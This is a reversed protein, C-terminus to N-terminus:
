FQSSNTPLSDAARVLTLGSEELRIAELRRDIAVLVDSLELDLGNPDASSEDSGHEFPKSIHILLNLSSM